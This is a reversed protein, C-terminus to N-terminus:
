EKINSQLRDFIHETIEIEEILLNFYEIRNFILINSNKIAVVSEAEHSINLGRIIIDNKEYWKDNSQTNSNALTGKLVIFIDESHNKYSFTLTENKKMEKIRVLKGLKVLVYEPINFFLPYRKLSKIREILLNKDELRKSSLTELLKQRNSAFRNLYDFCRAPNEDHIVMAATSYVLEDPHHLCLFIEDPMDSRRIMNLLETASEETWIPIEEYKESKYVTVGDSMSRKQHRGLVEIAKSKTWIDVTMYNKIIINKLRDTLNMKGQHSVSSLRKIRQHITIKDFIPIILQKIEQNIFNDIIELALITNEGIINKKILEIIAPQYIFSLLQFLIDLNRERELDLAQNLKLVNKEQEIDSITVYIWLIRDVINEIKKRIIWVEKINVQYQAYTLARIVALEVDYNPFDLHSLLLAISKPSKIKAFIETVKILLSPSVNQSFFKDLEDLIPLGVKIFVNGIVHYYEPQVFLEVLQPFLNSLNKRYILYIAARQINHNPYFLLNNIIESEISIKNRVLYKVLTIKDKLLVSENLLKLESQMVTYNDSFDLSNFANKALEKIIKNDTFEDQYIESVIDLFDSHWTPDINKLIAKTVTTDHLEFLRKAFPELVRPNSESLITVCMRVVESDISQLKKTLIDTGYQNGYIDNKKKQSFDTLIERIKDKYSFYLNQSIIVWIILLPLFFLPFSQLNYGFENHLVTNVALLMIGAIGIALQMVVGVKTQVALQENVPIIQYLINFSPDDLGRRLIREFSKNLTMLVLFSITVAGLTFGTITAFLILACTIVPLITLGVKLGFRSLLRSSFYSLLFEGIKLGGYVLALFQSVAVQNEFLNRQAKVSALFGFDSIYIVIMSLTASAFILVFYRQKMLQRFSTQQEIKQRVQKTHLAKDPYHKYVIILLYVAAVIGLNGVYLLNYSHKLFPLLFPITLYGLISALIGGMNMLGFLRKVQRLDLLKLALGGSEINSLSIFPWAWIFVFFSIWKESVYYRAVASSLSILLMFLLASLFLTKSSVRRQFFSYISTICYGAIGSVIYAIPLYETGYLQIFVANAPVFYFAIFLGVFFSHFFLQLFKVWEEQKIHFAELIYNRFKM